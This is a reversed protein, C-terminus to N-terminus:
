LRSCGRMALPCGTPVKRTRTRQMRFYTQNEPPKTVHPPRSDPEFPTSDVHDYQRVPLSDFAGCYISISALCVLGVYSSILDWDTGPMSHCFSPAFAPLNARIILLKTVVPDALFELDSKFGLRCGCCPEVFEIMGPAFSWRDYSPSFDDTGRRFCPRLETKKKEQIARQQSSRADALERFCTM